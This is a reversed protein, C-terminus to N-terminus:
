GLLRWLQKLHLFNVTEDVYIGFCVQAKEKEKPGNLLTESTKPGVFLSFNRKRM